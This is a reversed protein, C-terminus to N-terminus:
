AVDDTSPATPPPSNKLKTQTKVVKLGEPDLGIWTLLEGPKLGGEPPYLVTFCLRQRDLRVGELLQKLQIERLKGKRERTIVPQSASAFRELGSQAVELQSEDLDVHYDCSVVQLSVKGQMEESSFPDLGPPLVASMRELCDKTEVPEALEIDVVEDHSEVGLPLALAFTLKPHPHFGQTYAV